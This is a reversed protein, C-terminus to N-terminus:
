KNQLFVLISTFIGGLILYISYVICITKLTIELGKNVTDDSPNTCTANNTFLYYLILGIFIIFMITNVFIIPTSQAYSSVISLLILIYSFYEITKNLSQNYNQCKKQQNWIYIISLVLIPIRSYMDIYFIGDLRRDKKTIASPESSRFFNMINM